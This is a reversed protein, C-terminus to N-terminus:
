QKCWGSGSHIRWVTVVSSRSVAQLMRPWVPDEMCYGCIISQSGVDDQALSSGGYLLQLHDVSQRCWRPGSQIRWVTVVSALSVAQVMRPWVPDEMCYGCIISQSAVLSWGSGSHKRWITVMSSPKVTQLHGDQALNDGCQGYLLWLHHISEMCTAM